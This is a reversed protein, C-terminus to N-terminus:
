SSQWALALVAPRLGRRHAIRVFAESEVEEAARIALLSCIERSIIPYRQRDIVVRRLHHLDVSQGHRRVRLSHDIRAFRLRSQVQEHQLIRLLGGYWQWHRGRRIDAYEANDRRDDGHEIVGHAECM